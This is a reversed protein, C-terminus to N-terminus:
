QSGKYLVHVIGNEFSDLKQVVNANMIGSFRTFICTRGNLVIPPLGSNEM